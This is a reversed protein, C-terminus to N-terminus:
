GEQASPSEPNSIADARQGLGEAKALYGKM